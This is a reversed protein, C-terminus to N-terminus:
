DHSIEFEANDLYNFAFKLRKEISAEKLELSGKLYKAMDSDAKVAVGKFPDLKGNKSVSCYLLYKNQGKGSDPIYRPIMLVNKGGRVEHDKIVADIQGETIGDFGGGNPDSTANKITVYIVLDSQAVDGALTVGQDQCFPCAPAPAPVFLLALLAAAVSLVRLLGAMGSDGQALRARPVFRGGA